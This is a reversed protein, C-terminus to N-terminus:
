ALKQEELAKEIQSKKKKGSGGCSIMKLSREQSLAGHAMTLLGEGERKTAKAGRKM